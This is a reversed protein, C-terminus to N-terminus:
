TWIVDKVEHGLQWTFMGAGAYKLYGSVKSGWMMLVASVAFVVIDRGSVPIGEIVHDFNLEGLIRHIVIGLIAGSVIALVQGMFSNIGFEM